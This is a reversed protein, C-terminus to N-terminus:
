PRGRMKGMEERAEHVMQVIEDNSYSRDVKILGILSEFGSKAKRLVIRGDPETVYEIHDGSQVGLAQRIEVPVTTQGKSTIKGVVSM